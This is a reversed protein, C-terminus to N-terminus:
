GVHGIAGCMDAKLPLASMDNQSFGSERDSESSACASFYAPLATITPGLDVKLARPYRMRKKRNMPRTDARLPDMRQPGVTFAREM